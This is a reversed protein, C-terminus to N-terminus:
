LTFALELSEGPRVTRWREQLARLTRRAAALRAEPIPPRRDGVAWMSTRGFTDVAPYGWYYVLRALAEVYRDNALQAPVGASRALDAHAPTFARAAYPPTTM